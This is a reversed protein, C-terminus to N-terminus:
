DKEGKEPVNEQLPNEKLAKLVPDDGLRNVSHSREKELIEEIRVDAEEVMEKFEGSSIRIAGTRLASVQIMNDSTVISVATKKDTRSMLREIYLDGTERERTFVVRVDHFDYQEGKNGPVRYGDFVLVTEVRKFAAYNAVEQLLQERAAHIDSRALERLDEWAFIVNYGDIILLEGRKENTNKNVRPKDEAKRVISERYVPRKIPGFEKLMLAELEEATATIKPRTNEVVTNKAKRLTLDQGLTPELHMYKEVDQWPVSFGAGNACFVSDPSNELDGEPFYPYQARVEMENHCLDYGDNELLMRGMGSTYSSLKPAYDNLESAPARGSLIVLDGSYWPESTEGGMDRIDMMARSLAERPIELRFRYFPELLVSDAKMLGQRIARYTAQRFDGGETHKIHARGATLTIRVDTLPFGAIVGLHEKEQIHTLVLRQFNKNLVEERCANRILIGDNRGAPELIVHVEAYHRLPEYHGVGEVTNRITEKYLVRGRGIDVDLKFRDLLLSKLIEAQIEGMLGVQIERLREDWFVRLNPEEDELIRFVPLVTMPDEHNKLIVTYRMVPELVSESFGSEFGIGAGNKLLSLGKVACITGAEAENVTHFQEGEYIRIQNVKEETGDTKIIDRARLVGGTIKMYCIRQGDDDHTVKYVRGGLADSYSPERIFRALGEMFYDIGELKLGSGFFVPFLSRERILDRITEDEISGRDLFDLMVEEDCLSIEEDRSLNKESFSVCDGSLEEKLNEMIEEETFRGYDMKTVFIVTPIGYLSLLRWLTRTHSQVMDNGSIVLVAADLIKLTREMESSFDVHGPTDLLTFRREGVSFSAQSVFITIGREKELKQTDMMTNGHDVRGFLRRAGSLYLVGESLTTKGADVHALIGLVTNAM